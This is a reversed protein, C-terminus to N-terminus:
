GPIQTKGETRGGGGPALAIEPLPLAADSAQTKTERWRAALARQLQWAIPAERAELDVESWFCSLRPAPCRMLVYAAYFPDSAARASSPRAEEM